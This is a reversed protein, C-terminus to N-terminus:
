LLLDRLLAFFDDLITYSLGDMTEIDLSVQYRLTSFGALMFDYATTLEHCGM